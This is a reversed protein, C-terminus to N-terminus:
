LLSGNLGQQEVKGLLQGAQKSAEQNRGVDYPMLMEDPLGVFLHSLRKRAGKGFLWLGSYIFSNLPRFLDSKM